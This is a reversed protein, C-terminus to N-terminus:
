FFVLSPNVSCHTVLFLLRDNIILLLPKSSKGTATMVRKNDVKKAREREIWRLCSMVKKTQRPLKPITSIHLNTEWIEEHFINVTLHRQWMSNVSQIFFSLLKENDVVLTKGM